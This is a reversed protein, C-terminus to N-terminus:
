KQWNALTGQPKAGGQAVTIPAQEQNIHYVYAAVKEIDNGSVVGNKGWAQMASNNPSGNEVMWFINKFLTKEPQNIWFKDTLNPGIGGKGGEGHCSVCNTQFVEKGAEWNDESFVATELTAQPVNKMYEAVSATQQKYEDDYEKVPHAFDTLWYSAMYIICFACGFYFLGLWWKPLQNDLEMIGDFGHDILIDKEESVSQQKFASQYLALFYNKKKEELYVAKEEDTLKNFKQNEILDGIASQILVLIAGIVITGWFLPSGLFRYNQVLLYFAIIVLVSVIIITIYVPNRQKM